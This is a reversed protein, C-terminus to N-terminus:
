GADRAAAFSVEMCRVLGEACRGDPDREPDLITLDM